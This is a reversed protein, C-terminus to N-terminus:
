IRTQFRSPRKDFEDAIWKATQFTIYIRLSAESTMRDIEHTLLCKSIRIMTLFDLYHCQLGHIMLSGTQDTSISSNSRLEWNCDDRTIFKKLLYTNLM